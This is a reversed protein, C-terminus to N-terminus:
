GGTGGTDGDGGGPGANDCDGSKSADKKKDDGTPAAGTKKEEGSPAAGKDDDGSKSGGKDCDGSKSPEKKDESSKSPEKKEDGGKSGSKDQAAGDGGARLELWAAETLAFVKVSPPKQSSHQFPWIRTFALRTCSFLFIVFVFLGNLRKKLKSMDLGAQIQGAL